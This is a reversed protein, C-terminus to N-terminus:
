CINRSCVTGLAQERLRGDAVVTNWQGPVDHAAGHEHHGLVNSRARMIWKAYGNNTGQEQSM